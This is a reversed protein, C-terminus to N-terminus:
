SVAAKPLREGCGACFRDGSGCREGCAPCFNVARDVPEAVPRDGGGAKALEAELEAVVKAARTESQEAISDLAALTAAGEALARKRLDNYQQDSLRGDRHDAELDRLSALVAERRALLAVARPDPESTSVVGKVVPTAIWWVAVLLMALGALLLLLTSPEM